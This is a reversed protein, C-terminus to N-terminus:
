INNIKKIEKILKISEKITEYMIDNGYGNDDIHFVESMILEQIDELNNLIEKKNM